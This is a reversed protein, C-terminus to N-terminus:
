PTDALREAIDALETLLHQATSLAKARVKYPETEHIIDMGMADLAVQLSAVDGASALERANAITHKDTESLTM